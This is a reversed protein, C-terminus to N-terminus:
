PPRKQLYRFNRMTGTRTLIGERVMDALSHSVATKDYNYGRRGLEEHVESLSREESLYSETWLQELLGRCTMSSTKAIRQRDASEPVVRQQMANKKLEDMEARIQRLQEELGEDTWRKASEDLTSLVKSVVDRLRSESCAIEVEWDRHRLKVRVEDIPQNGAM